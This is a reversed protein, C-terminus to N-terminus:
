PNRPPAPPEAAEAVRKLEVLRAAWFMRYQALWGDIEALPGPDLRYRRERGARREQVLGAERLVRLHRSVAPRSIPFREALEGAQREGGRLFDLIARRTPHGVASCTREM